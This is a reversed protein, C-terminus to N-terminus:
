HHGDGEHHESADHWVEHHLSEQIYPDNIPVLNAKSLATFVVYVFLAGFGLMTGIELLGPVDFGMEFHNTHIQDVAGHGGGSIFQAAAESGQEIISGHDDHGHGADHGHSGHAAEHEKAALLAGPKIMNFYDFWHGFLVLASAFGITGFKRKTTNRMLILFPLVFNIILNGYFLIPYDQIRERFYLTEEGINSYWILMYQSFWLYTWFVSFGFLYKGLDHVHEATVVELYGKSKLYIIMLIIIALCSVLWSATAYWAFMTSYWHADISMVWLWIMAASSFGALPLFIAARVKAKKYFSYDYDKGGGENDERISLQRFSYAFAIWMGVIIFSGLTYWWKNLFASKALLIPDAAVAAEDAWHYLHHWHLFIGVIVVSLLALGIPMYMTIAEMIRKFVTHWGSYALLKCAMVFTSIFGIGLFFVTNHLYNTWFRLEAYDGGMFYTLAMCVIGLIMLGILTTKQKAEFVFQQNM